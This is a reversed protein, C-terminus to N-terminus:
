GTLIAAGIALAMLVLTLGLVARAGRDSYPFDPRQLGIGALVVAWVVLAAGLLYFPVKSTDATLLLLSM